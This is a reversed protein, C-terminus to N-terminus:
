AASEIRQILVGTASNVAGSFGLWAVTKNSANPDFPTLGNGLVSSRLKTSSAYIASGVIPAATTIPTLATNLALAVSGNLTYIGHGCSVSSSGFQSATRSSAVQFAAQSFDSAVPSSGSADIVNKNINYTDTVYSFTANTGSAGIAAPGSRSSSCNIELPTGASATGSTNTLINVNYTSGGLVSFVVAKTASLIVVDMDSLVSGISALGVSSLTVDSRSLTNGSVSWIVGAPRGASNLYFMAWQSGMPAVRFGQASYLVYESSNLTITTGSVNALQGYVAGDNTNTYFALVKSTNPAFLVMQFTGNQGSAGTVVVRTGITVTTGSITFAILSQNLFPRMTNIVYSSGVAVLNSMTTATDGGTLIATTGVTITTGSISLVVGRISADNASWVCLIQNAASLISKGIQTTGSYILVTTGFTGTSSDFVAGYLASAANFVIFSRTSDIVTTDYFGTLGSVLTRNWYNATIAAPDLGDTVWIGAATSNDALGISNSDGPYVFGLLTGASNAVRLPFGGVNSITYLVAAKSLTTASPLTVTQGWGTTTIAQAGVSASTLTVNGSATTGGGGSSATAATTQISNDPFQVGTSVLSVAM